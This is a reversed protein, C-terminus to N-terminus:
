DGESSVSEHSFSAGDTSPVAVRVTSVPNIDVRQGYFKLLILITAESLRVLQKEKLYFFSSFLGETHSSEFKEHRVLHYVKAPCLGYTHDGKQVFYDYM